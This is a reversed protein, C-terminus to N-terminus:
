APGTPAPALEIIQKFMSKFAGTKEASFRPDGNAGFAECIRTWDQATLVQEAIPLLVQEEVQMHKWTLDAFRDVAQAFRAAAGPAGGEMDGLAMLVAALLALDDHHQQRLQTLVDDAADTRAAVVVFIQSEEKPHHFAQPFAVVYCVMTWLLRYNPAQGQEAQRALHQLRQVVAGLARHEDHIIKV